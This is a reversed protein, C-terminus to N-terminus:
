ATVGPRLDMAARIARAFRRANVVDMSLATKGLSKEFEYKM